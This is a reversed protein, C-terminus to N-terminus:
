FLDNFIDNGIWNVDGHKIARVHEECKESSGFWCLAYCIWNADYFSLCGIVYTYTLVHSFTLNSTENLNILLITSM